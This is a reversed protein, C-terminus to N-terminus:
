PLPGDKAVLWPWITARLATTHSVHTVPNYDQLVIFCEKLLPDLHGECTIREKATHPGYYSAVTVDPMLPDTHLPLRCSVLRGPIHTRQRSKAPAIFTHILLAVGARTDPSSALLHYGWYRAM